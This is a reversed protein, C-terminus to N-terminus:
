RKAVHDLVSTLPVIEGDRLWWKAECSHCTTFTLDRENVAMSITILDGDHCSPCTGTTAPMHSTEAAAPQWAM